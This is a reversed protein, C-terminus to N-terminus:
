SARTFGDESWGESGVGHHVFFLGEPDYRRKIDLLRPYNPGWLTKQWDPQFYDCENVYAGTDPAAARLAMMAANVRERHTAATAVNAAPFGDFVPPGAAAIIALAFADFADPHTATKKTAAIAAPPAGFLGKNFHLSVTWQRSAAFLADVLRTQSERELLAAPLWASTYAHWFAGVQDGDGKWWYDTWPAGHRDDFNVVSRAFIRYLWGNWFYRAPVSAVELLPQGDYDASNSAAFDLLPEFTALAEDKTLGQFVMRIELRNDPHMRIQEGWHPTCLSTACLEVVRALLKRYAPDSRARLTLNVPGVNDPLPHTALTLRTVVGFSGGGGGKLAWFLDPESVDNVV